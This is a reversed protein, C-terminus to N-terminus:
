GAAQAGLQFIPLYLSILVTAVVIGMVILIVPEILSLAASLATQVDEELFEAVSTLMAPLAGTSEGVEVMEYALDPFVKTEELSRSLPRGERVKQVSDLIANSLLKSEISDGATELAQVLPLGGSLLTAMTRSFIAVQYKLWIGGAIPLSLRFRDIATSGGETKSWRWLLFSGVVLLLLFLWIWHKAFDGVSLVFITMPPLSGNGIQSYLTQFQPVVYSLLFTFMLTVMTILLAPYVLSAVLKKRFALAIRQFAIFRGLVEELNGSKEGALLTTTYVKSVAGPAANRFAESLLEGTRVRQRVNEIITRLYRNKQRRSLLDLGQLIPLGARILTLFQQNFIVFTELRVKKQRAPGAQGLLGRPKVATVLLGQQAFRERLESVSAAHEVHESVHGREDATHVLYEAM